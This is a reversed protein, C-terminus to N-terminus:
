SLRARGTVWVSWRGKPRFADETEISVRDLSDSADSVQCCRREDGLRLFPSLRVLECDAGDYVGERGIQPALQPQQLSLQGRADVKEM